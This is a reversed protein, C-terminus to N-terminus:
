EVRGGWSRLVLFTVVGGVGFQAGEEVGGLRGRGGRLGGTRGELAWRGM